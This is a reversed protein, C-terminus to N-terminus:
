LKLREHLPEILNNWDRLAIMSMPPLLLGQVMITVPQGALGEDGTCVTLPGTWGMIAAEHVVWSVTHYLIPTLIISDIAELLSIHLLRRRNM